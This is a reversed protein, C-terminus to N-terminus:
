LHFVSISIYLSLHVELISCSGTGNTFHNCTEGPPTMVINVYTPLNGTAWPGAVAVGRSHVNRPVDTEVCAPPVGSNAGHCTAVQWCVQLKEMSGRITLVSGRALDFGPCMLSDLPGIDFM